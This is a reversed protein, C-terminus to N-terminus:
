IQIKRADHTCQTSYGAERAAAATPSACTWGDFRAAATNGGRVLDPDDFYRDVVKVAEACTIGGYNVFIGATAGTAQYTHEGCSQGYPAYPESGKATVARICLAVLRKQVAVDRPGAGVTWETTGEAPHPDGVVIADADARDPSDYPGTPSPGCGLPESQGDYGTTEAPNMPRGQKLLIYRKATHAVLDEPFQEQGTLVVQPCAYSEDMPGDAIVQGLDSKWIQGVQTAQPTTALIANLAARDVGVYRERVYSEPYRWCKELLGDVNGASVDAAWAVMPSSAGAVRVPETPTSAPAGSRSGGGASDGGADCGGLIPVLLTTLVAACLSRRFSFTM